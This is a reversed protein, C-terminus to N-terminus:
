IDGDERVEEVDQWKQIYKGGSLPRIYEVQLTKTGDKKILWRLNSM